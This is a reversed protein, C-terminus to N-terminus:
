NGLAASALSGSGPYYCYVNTTTYFAGKCCPCSAGISRWMGSPAPILIPASVYGCTPQLCNPHTAGPDCYWVYNMDNYFCEAGQVRAARDRSVSDGIASEGYLWPFLLVVTAVALYTLIASRM